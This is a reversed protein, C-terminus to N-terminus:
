TAGKMKEFYDRMDETFSVGAVTGVSAMLMVPETAIDLDLLRTALDDYFAGNATCGVKHLAACALQLNESIHGV